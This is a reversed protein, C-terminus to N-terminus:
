ATQTITTKFHEPIETLFPSPKQKVPRQSGHDFRFSSYSLYLRTAARTMAVYLLRREEEYDNPDTKSRVHPFVNDELGIVFTEPWELGKASHVSTLTIFDESDDDADGDLTIESVFQALNNAEQEKSDWHMAFDRLHAINEIRAEDEEKERDYQKMFNTQQIVKKM